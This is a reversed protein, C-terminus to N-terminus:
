DICTFLFSGFYRKMIVLDLTKCTLHMIQNHTNKYSDGILHYFLDYIQLYVCIGEKKISAYPYVITDLAYRQFQPNIRM